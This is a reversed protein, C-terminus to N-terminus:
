DKFVNSQRRIERVKGPDGAGKLFVTNEFVGREFLYRIESRNILEDICTGHATVVFRVGCGIGNLIADADSQSSIEDCFIVDHSLTRIASIIGKSRCLNSIVDTLYGVDNQPVGNRQCSIENREDILTVKRFSGTLRCMERLVTTKGSSVGGAIITNTDFTRSFIEDACGNVCRSIRFNISTFDVLRSIQASSYAGSVGARVGNEIVFCGQGLQESCSHISYHCLREIVEHLISATVIYSESNFTDSIRGNRQLFAIKNPYVFYLPGGARLRIETVKKLLDDSFENLILRIKEPMYNKITEISTSDNM